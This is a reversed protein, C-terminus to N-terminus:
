SQWGNTRGSAIGIQVPGASRHGIERGEGIAYVIGGPELPVVLIKGNDAGVAIARFEVDRLGIDPIHFQLNGVRGYGVIQAGDGAAVGTQNAEGNRERLSEAEVVPSVLM